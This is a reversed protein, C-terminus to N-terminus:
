VCVKYIFFFQQYKCVEKCIRYGKVFKVHLAIQTPLAAFCPRTLMACSLCNFGRNPHNVKSHAQEAHPPIYKPNSQVLLLNSPIYKPNSQMGLSMNPIARCAFPYIRSQYAKNSQVYFKLDGVLGLKSTALYLSRYGKKLGKKVCCLLSLLALLLRNSRVPLTCCLTCFFWPLFPIRVWPVLLNYASKAFWHRLGSLWGERNKCLM